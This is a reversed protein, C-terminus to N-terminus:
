LTGERCREPRRLGRYTSAFETEGGAGAIEHACLVTAMIPIDETMGDIHWDFTGRLYDAHPNKKPDLTVRYIEPHKGTGFSEVRGLRKSFAVQDADDLHLGRFALVGNADLADLVAPPLDPDHLLRERDVDVVSAGVAESLRETVLARMM